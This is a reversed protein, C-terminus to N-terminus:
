CSDEKAHHITAHPANHRNKGNFAGYFICQPGKMSFADCGVVLCLGGRPKM